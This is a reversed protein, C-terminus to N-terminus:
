FHQFAKAQLPEEYGDPRRLTIGGGATITGVRTLPVHGAAAEVAARVTHGSGLAVAMLLEYDEGGHLALGLPEWGHRACAARMEPSLPLAAAELAAGVGSERILHGLDGALGDSIDMMAHVAGSELAARAQWVRPSPTNHASVLRPAEAGAGEMLLRLGAASDGLAGTVWIEDGAKAGSRRLARGAEVYGFATVSIATARPSAVIDGGWVAAGLGHAQLVDAAGRYFCEIDDVTTDARLGLTLLVGAPLAGMAAIDSLNVAISKHGLEEPTIWDWRFHVDEILADATMVLDMGPPSAQVACDDGIGRVVDMKRLREILGFEGLESVLHGM